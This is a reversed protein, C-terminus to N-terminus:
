SACVAQMERAMVSQYLTEYKRASAKWSLDLKMGTTALQKWLEPQTRYMECARNLATGLDQASYSDFRFGTATKARLTEENTDTVTDALGGVTHVIPITGYHLSYLQNLGCPEFRSPMLFMDAGAEIVHALNEDFGIRAALQNPYEGALQEFLQEYREEGAGLVVWQARSSSLWSDILERVLDIGKQDVLRSIIGILPVDPVQPLGVSAQLAAKCAAKGAQWDDVSYNQSLHPDTAPDWTGYDIGNIIGTLRDERQKLVGDLGCGLPSECIEHAYRPSVTTIADAFVIGTKLLNLDGYYEMERWNFYKWDLGTLLMDWHWFCGQYAMNHITMVSVTNELGRVTGYEINLYAPILGTQWDNAHLVDIRLDLLRIAEMVARCFFVYRQCNDRFDEHGDSYLGDRDFYDPQEVLYVPVDSHPLHSKLLRGPIVKNGVPIDFRFDTEVVPLGSEYVSRYAPMVLMTDHGLQSLAIPLAGCVDALGGTKAFPIAESAAFLIKM